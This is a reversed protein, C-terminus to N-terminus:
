YFRLGELFRELKGSPRENNILLLFIVLANSNSGPIVPKSTEIEKYTILELKLM